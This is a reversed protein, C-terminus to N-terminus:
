RCIHIQDCPHWRHGLGLSLKFIEIINTTCLNHCFSWFYGPYPLTLLYYKNIVRQGLTGKVREAVYTSHFKFDNNVQPYGGMRHPHWHKQQKDWQKAIGFRFVQVVQGWILDWCRAGAKVGGIDGPSWPCLPSPILYFIGPIPDELGYVWVPLRLVVHKSMTIPAGTTVLCSFVSNHPQNEM